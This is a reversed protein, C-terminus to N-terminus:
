AWDGGKVLIDPQVVTILELPTSEEFSVVWDICALGALVAARDAEPNVPRNGGKGLSKVSADSNLGLILGDGLARARALLDVHGPHLIDFCGNTFVLRFGEPLGRRIELFAELGLVKDRSTM